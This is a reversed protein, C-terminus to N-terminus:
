TIASNNRRGPNKKVNLAKTKQILHKRGLNFIEVLFDGRKKPSM